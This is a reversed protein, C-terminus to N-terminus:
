DRSKDGNSIKHLDAQNVFGGSAGTKDKLKKELWKCREYNEDDMGKLGDKRRLVFLVAQVLLDVGAPYHGHIDLENNRCTRLFITASTLFITM